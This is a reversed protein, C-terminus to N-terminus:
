NFWIWVLTVFNIRVIDQLSMFHRLGKPRPPLDDQKIVTVAPLETMQDADGETDGETVVVSTISRTMFNSPTITHDTSVSRAVSDLSPRSRIFHDGHADTQSPKANSTPSSPRSQSRVQWTGFAVSSSDQMGLNFIQATASPSMPLPTEPIDIELEEHLRLNPTSRKHNLYPRMSSSPVPLGQTQHFTHHVPSRAFPDQQIAGVSTSTLSPRPSHTSNHPARVTHNFDQLRAFADDQASPPAFFDNFLRGKKVEPFNVLRKVWLDLEERRNVLTSRTVFLTM